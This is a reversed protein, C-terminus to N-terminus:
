WGGGGAGLVCVCLETNVVKWIGRVFEKKITSDFLKQLYPTVM